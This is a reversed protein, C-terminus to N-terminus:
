SPKTVHCPLGGISVLGGGDGSRDRPELGLEGGSGGSPGTKGVTLPYTTLDIPKNDVVPSKVLPGAVRLLWLILFLGVTHTVFSLLFNEPRTQYTGYGGGFLSPMVKQVSNDPEMQKVASGGAATMPPDQLEVQSEKEQLSSMHEVADAQLNSEKTYVPERIM